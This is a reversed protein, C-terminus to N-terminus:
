KRHRHVRRKKKSRKKRTRRIALEDAFAICFLKAESMRHAGQKGVEEVHKGFKIQALTECIFALEAVIAERLSFDRKPYIDILARKVKGTLRTVTPSPRTGSLDHVISLTARHARTISLRHEREKASGRTFTEKLAFSCNRFIDSAIEHEV